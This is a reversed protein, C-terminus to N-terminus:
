WKQLDGVKNKVINKMLLKAKKGKAPSNYGDTERQREILARMERYVAHYEGFSTAIVAVPLAVLLMGTMACAGSVFRGQHTSPIVDGYGVSTLTIIAWWLATPLDSITNKEDIEMVYILIAFGASAVVALLILMLLEKQCNQLCLKLLRLEDSKWSLRYFRFVRFYSVIRCIEGVRSLVTSTHYMFIVGLWEAVLILFEVWNLVQRAFMGRERTVLIRLVFDLTFVSLSLIAIVMLWEEPRTTMLM